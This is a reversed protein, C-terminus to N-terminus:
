SAYLIVMKAVLFGTRVWNSSLTRAIELHPLDAPLLSVKKVGDEVTFVVIVSEDKLGSHRVGTQPNSRLNM